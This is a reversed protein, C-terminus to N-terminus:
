LSLQVTLVDAALKEFNESLFSWIMCGIGAILEEFRLKCSATLDVAKQGALFTKRGPASPAAQQCLRGNLSQESIMDLSVRDTQMAKCVKSSTGQAPKSAARIGAYSTTSDDHIFPM